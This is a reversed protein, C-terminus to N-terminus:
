KMSETFDETLKRIFEAERDDCVMTVENEDIIFYLMKNDYEPQADWTDAIKINEYIFFEKSLSAAPLSSVNGLILVVDDKVDQFVGDPWLEFIKKVIIGFLDKNSNAPIIVDDGGIMRKERRVASKFQMFFEHRAARAGVIDGVVEADIEKLMAQELQYTWYEINM